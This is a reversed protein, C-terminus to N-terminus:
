RRVTVIASAGAVTGGQRGVARVEVRTGDAYASLDPKVQYPTPTDDTGAVRWPGGDAPRTAFTIEADGAGEWEATLWTQADLVGGDAPQTVRLAGPATAVKPARYLAFSLAPVPVTVQGNGDSAVSGGTDGVGTWTRQGGGPHVAAQVPETANNFVVLYDDAGDPLWRTFAFVGGDSSAVRMAGSALEPIEARLKALGAIHRYLPHGTDYRDALGQAGGIAPQNFEGVKSAFLDQRADKDGAFGSLGQEDGYYVVPQGRTLFMLSHALEDRKLLEDGTAAPSLFMGIRGMDHNGLFTVSQYANSDADTYLDDAAYLAALGDKTGGLVYAVAQKQFAFDLTGPAKDTTSYQALTMPNADYVEGFMFFEHTGDSGPRKLTVPESKAHEMIAPNFAQWFGADVHKMTDIRFGDVGYDVWADYIDIMGKRVEPRETWLDDLGVFDGYTVSEGSWTNDGRMHYMLPDNLWDPKKVTKDAESAFTPVYPAFTAAELTPFAGQAGAAVDDFANGAADRYPRQEKTVYAPASQQGAYRIVDATHNVIIDFYVKMGRAHAAAILAKMEADTGLHPDIRTFDTVWYGHYGASADAGSGQVPRNVFVPTLWLATTGLGAIYDLKDTIGRLDGGHFFGKDTPDFGTVLRDGTLGGTDNGPDGNAFRDPLVFYFQEATGRPRLSHAALAADSTAGASPAGTGGPAATCGAALVGAAALVALGGRGTRRREAM